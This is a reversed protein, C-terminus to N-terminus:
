VHAPAERRRAARRQELINQGDGYGRQYGHSIRGLAARWQPWPQRAASAEPLEIEDFGCALAYAFQDAILPGQARLTGTFGHNRIHRALSFGRGDSFAPFIISVLSLQRLNLKLESISINNAIEVGLRQDRGKAALADNLQPWSVLAFAHGEIAGDEVRVYADNKYGSRDLLPM